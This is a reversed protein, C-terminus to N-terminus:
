QTNTFRQKSSPAFRTGIKGTIKVSLSKEFPVGDLGHALLRVTFDGPHTYAHSVTTGEARSGDGFDWHYALVPVAAPDADASFQVAKGVGANEPVHMSVSPAAAPISTDIIKLVKVSHPPLQVEIIDLNNEVPTSSSFVDLIQNHGRSQLGLDGALDFRHATPKETWNFVALIVQRKSEQLLFISPMSDEPTYSMLDLPRAARGLRVMNRLTENKVLAMRDSDAGLTPLDDGIEYMGGAVAALAISVKAEDLTLPSKGGHWEQEDVTQRSVTFADPDAIYFNRNMYYRAAIGPAAEKSAEFTHGTDVSIRGMDVIGVPNMMPSGDKDLLVDNGVADRIVHLGIRQAELATTNPKYYFGEIASDDMFDLKIYRIGWDRTLTTYTKRLYEQAGPNTCDLIYLQDLRPEEDIVWGAHIPKGAANRVLWDKHNEYVSSRESVEFPATWIGPTLGLARIKTELASVGDPFLSADSTTYEGRAYQHGEDIHFFNYGVDRLNEALWKANTLATGQNLGFYYATWSWWGAAAPASARGHHLRRVLSGYTELQEHYDTGASILLQESHLDAGPAVPLSLEIQDEVPSKELSNEKALETTGASDVEYSGIHDKDVHLRLITLFKESTLTGLFVSRKTRLNYILQSGVGRHMGNAADALNRITIGPRDESFSDSLIRDSIDPGGLDAIVPGLAEVSRFAQITIPSTGGNRVNVAITVFDPNAHLQLSYILDPQGRLGTNSMTLKTGPGLEDVASERSSSHQPYDSSKLWRHDVEAAVRSHLIPKKSVPDFIIYSGDAPKVSVGITKEECTVSSPNPTSAPRGFLLAPVLLAVFLFLWCPKRNNEM